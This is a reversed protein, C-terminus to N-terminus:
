SQSWSSSSEEQIIEREFGFDMLQSSIVQWRIDVPHQLLYVIGIIHLTFSYHGLGSNHVNMSSEDLKFGRNMWSSVGDGMAELRGGNGFQTSFGAKRM